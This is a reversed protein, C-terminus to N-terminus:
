SDSQKWADDDQEVQYSTESDYKNTIPLDLHKRLEETISARSEEEVQFYWIGDDMKGGNGELNVTSIPISKKLGYSIFSRMEKFSLNTTMNKGVVEMLDDLKFVSSASSAEKVITKIIEQQRKGRAIDSDYKRTRALALAEEGNLNQFGPLLHIANKKDNSDPEQMEYPVDYEIGGLTDVTEVFAEFNLRIYYDVPVNLFSEVADITATPGGYAHAHNIKTHYGVEPVYVYSDRPITLLKVNEKKKNFTALMLTDSRSGEEFGREESDDVGIILLSVNDEIPDVAEERLDSTENNRDVGEFSDNVTNQAKIYLHTGYAFVSLLIISLPLIIYLLIKKRKMKKSKGIRSHKKDSM